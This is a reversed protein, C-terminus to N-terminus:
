QGEAAKRFVLSFNNAPMDIKETLTLGEREAAIQLDELNRIRWETNQHSLEMDFAQNGASTHKHNQKFPGYIFLFGSDSLCLSANKFISLTVPWPSVHTMNIVILADARTIPWSYELADLHIPERVNPLSGLAIRRSVSERLEADMDTPQWTIEPFSQAFQEVHQGTGSGLELVFGSEPLLSKLVELIPLRNRDASPSHWCGDATKTSSKKLM